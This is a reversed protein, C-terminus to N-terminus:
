FYFFFFTLVVSTLLTAPPGVLHAPLWLTVKGTCIGGSGENAFVFPRQCNIPLNEREKRELKAELCMLCMLVGEFMKSEGRKEVDDLYHEEM